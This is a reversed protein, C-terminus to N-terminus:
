EGYICHIYDTTRLDQCGGIAAQRVCFEAIGPYHIILLIVAEQNHENPHTSSCNLHMEIQLSVPSAQKYAIPVTKLIRTRWFHYTPMSLPFYQTNHIADWEPKMNTNVPVQPTNNNNYNNRLVANYLQIIIIMGSSSMLAYRVGRVHRPQDWPM